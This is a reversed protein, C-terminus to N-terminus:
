FQGQRAEIANMYQALAPAAFAAVLAAGYLTKYFGM